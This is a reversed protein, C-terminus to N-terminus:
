FNLQHKHRDWDSHPPEELELEALPGDRLPVPNLPVPGCLASTEKVDGAEVKFGFNIKSHM